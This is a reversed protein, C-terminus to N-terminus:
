RLGGVRAPPIAQFPADIRVQGTFYNEPGPQSPQSGSQIIKVKDEVNAFVAPSLMSLIVTSAALLKM